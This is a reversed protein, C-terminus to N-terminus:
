NFKTTLRLEIGEFDLVEYCIGSNCAPGGRRRGAFLGLNFMGSPRYTFLLGPFHKSKEIQSTSAKDAVLPDNSFEYNLAASYHGSKSIEISSFFNVFREAELGIYQRKIRQFEIDITSSLKQTLLTSFYLGTARRDTENSLDDQSWDVFTKLSNNENFPVYVEMFYEKFVYPQLYQNTAKSTNFTLMWDNKLNYYMEIQYGREDGLDSVHTSRNLLKYSHEKVLTPPDSIGKGIILNHYDKWEFSIGLSQFSKSLSVYAGYSDEKQTRFLKSGQNTKQVFESYHNIKFPLVGELSASGYVSQLNNSSVKL